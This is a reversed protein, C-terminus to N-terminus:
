FLHERLDDCGMSVIESFITSNPFSGFYFQLQNSPLKLSSSESRRQIAKKEFFNSIIKNLNKLLKVTGILSCVRRFKNQPASRVHLRAQAVDDNSPYCSRGSDWM